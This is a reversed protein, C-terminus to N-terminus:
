PFTNEPLGIRITRIAAKVTPILPPAVSLSRLGTQLLMSLKDTRNALEGCLTVPLPGAALMVMCILRQIAVHDELYYGDVSPEERDAVMTYQTLDNTGISLFDAANALEEACLAAAPTEVMAGLPPLKRAVLKDATMYFLQQVRQFDELLTVMPVLIRLDFDQSLRLLARLQTTLLDPYHLLLRVGRRGLSPNPEQPLKVFSPRKDGGVDLLRVTVTKDKVTVLVNRMADTLEDETPPKRRSLYLSDIRYLGVEDAGNDTALEADEPTGINAGVCIRIGDRTFAPEHRHELALAFGQAHERRRKEFARLAPEDPEVVVTGTLADVLLFDGPKVTDLVHPTQAVAPIGMLRTLLAAHSTPGGHELVVATTSRRSLMVTDSPLLRLAVVVSGEALKGLSHWHSGTLARLLRRALDAIDDARQRLIPDDAEQFVGELRILVQKCAQGASFFERELEQKIEEMVSPSRLMAAQARFIDAHNKDLDAELRQATDDLDDLVLKQAKEVRAFEGEVANPEIAYAELDDDL